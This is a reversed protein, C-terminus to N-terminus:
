LHYYKMLQQYENDVMEGFDSGFQIPMSALLGDYVIFGKFPILSTNVVYPLEDNPIVNDINDNLGKVMYIRDKSMFATYELEYRSIIFIDRIGKSFETALSLEEKTFNYPNALCFEMTLASKNAWYKEVIDNLEFPNVGNQNYIKLRPNIAYKKNTFELLAFYIKYFLKAEKPALCANKQKIYRQAQIRKANIQKLTIEKAENPTFGNLAGSPMEDMAENMIKFFSTLDINRLSPVAAIGNELYQRDLNLLACERINRIASQWYFPLKKLEKLFRKIKPNNIDFDNYFLTKYQNHDIIKAGAIGQKKRQVELEEEIGYYDQYIAFPINEGLEKFDKSEIFVYYNFLKDYLLHNWILEPDLNTIGSAFECVTYLIASGQIKCYAVLLENLDDIKKKHSWNVRKLAEKIQELIEEPIYIGETFDYQILFKKELNDIEWKYKDDPSIMKTEEDSKLLAGKTSQENLIMKLYKLERTTCLNIINDPENYVDYIAKIMKVKTIKEYDKFEDVIRVYQEYVYDKRFYKIEDYLKM